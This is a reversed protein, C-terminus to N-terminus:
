ADRVTGAIDLFVSRRPTGETVREREQSREAGGSEGRHQVHLLAAQPVSSMREARERGHGDGLVDRLIDGLEGKLFGGEGEVGERGFDGPLEAGQEALQGDRAALGEDDVDAAEAVGVLWEKVAGQGAGRGVIGAPDAAFGAGDRAKVLAGVMHAAQELLGSALEALAVVEGFLVIGGVAAAEGQVNGVGADDAGDRDRAEGLAVVVVEDDFGKAQEGPAIVVGSLSASQRSAGGLLKM